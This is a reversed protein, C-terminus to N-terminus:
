QVLDRQIEPAIRMENLIGSTAALKYSTGYGCISTSSANPLVNHTYGYIFDPKEVSRCLSCWIAM